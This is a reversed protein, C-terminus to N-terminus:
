YFYRVFSGTTPDRDPPVAVYIETAGVDIGAANAEICETSLGSEQEATKAYARGRLQPRPWVTLKPYDGLRSRPWMGALTVLIAVVPDPAMSLIPEFAGIRLWGVEVFRLLVLM